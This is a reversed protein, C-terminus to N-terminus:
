WFSHVLGDAPAEALNPLGRRTTTPRLSADGIRDSHSERRTPIGRRLHRLRAARHCPSAIVSLGCRRRSSGNLRPSAIERRRGNVTCTDVAGRPAPGFLVTGEHDQAAVGRGPIRCTDWDAGLGHLSVQDLQVPEVHLLGCGLLFGRVARRRRDPDAESCWRWTVIVRHRRTVLGLDARGSRQRLGEFGLPVCAVFTRLDTRGSPRASRRKLPRQRVTVPPSSAM